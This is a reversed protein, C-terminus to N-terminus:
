TMSHASKRAARSQSRAELVAWLVGAVALASTGPYREFLRLGTPLLRAGLNVASAATVRDMASRAPSGTGVAKEAFGNTDSATGASVDLTNPSTSM